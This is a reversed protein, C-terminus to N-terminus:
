LASLVRLRYGFGLDGARGILVEHTGRDDLDGFALATIAAEEDLGLAELRVDGLVAADEDEVEDRKYTYLVAHGEVPGIRGVVVTSKGGFPDGVFISTPEVGDAWAEPSELVQVLMGPSGLDEVCELDLAAGLRDEEPAM